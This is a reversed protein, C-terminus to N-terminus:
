PAPYESSNSYNARTPPLHPLTCAYSRDCSLCPRYRRSSQRYRNEHPSPLRHALIPTAYLQITENSNDIPLYTPIRQLYRAHPNSSSTAKSPSDITYDHPYLKERVIGELVRETACSARNSACHWRSM